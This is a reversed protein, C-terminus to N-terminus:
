RLLGGRATWVSGAKVFTDDPIQTLNVIVAGAGIFVRDGIQVDGCITVGPAITCHRGITTRTMTVGYNIHTGPGWTCDPGIFAHPHVWAMDDLGWSDTIQVRTTIDNIGLIFLPDDWIHHADDHHAVQKWVKQDLTPWIDRAHGGDGILVPSM